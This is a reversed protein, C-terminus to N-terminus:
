NLESSILIIAIRDSLSLTFKRSGNGYCSLALCSEKKHKNIKKKKEKHLVVKTDAIKGTFTVLSLM